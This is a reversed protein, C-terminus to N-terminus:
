KFINYQEGQAVRGFNLCGLGLFGEYELTAGIDSPFPFLLRVRLALSFDSTSKAFRVLRCSGWSTSSVIARYKFGLLRGAEFLYLPISQV